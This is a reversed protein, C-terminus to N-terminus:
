NLAVRFPELVDLVFYLYFFCCKRVESLVINLDCTRNSMGHDALIIINTCNEMKIETIADMLDRIYSDVTTLM